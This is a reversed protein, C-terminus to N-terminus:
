PDDAMSDLGADRRLHGNVSLISERGVKKEARPKRVCALERLLRRTREAVRRM